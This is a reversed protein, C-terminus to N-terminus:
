YYISTTRKILVMKIVGDDAIFELNQKMANKLLWAFPNYWNLICVLEAILVDFTHKQRVHVSEHKIIESLEDESHRNSNLYIANGFSFPIIDMNLQYLKVGDVESVLKAASRIKKFSFLQMLFYSLCIVIGAILLSPVIYVLNGSNEETIFINAPTNIPVSPISNIFASSNITQPAVFLDLKILPIIFAFVSFILLFFRNVAYHTVRKLLLFYFLYIVAYCVTIKM